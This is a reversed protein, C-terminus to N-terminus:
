RPWYTVRVFLPKRRALGELVHPTIGAPCLVTVPGSLPRHLADSAQVSGDRAPQAVSAFSDPQSSESNNM